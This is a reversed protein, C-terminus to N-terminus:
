DIDVPFVASWSADTHVASYVLEEYPERPIDDHRFISRGVLVLGTRVVTDAHEYVSLADDVGPRVAAEGRRRVNAFHRQVGSRMLHNDLEVLVAAARTDLHLERLYRVDVGVAWAAVIEVAAVGGHREFAHDVESARVVRDQREPIQALAARAVSETDLNRGVAAIRPVLDCVPRVGGAAPRPLVDGQIAVAVPQDVDAEAQVRAVVGAHVVAPIDVVDLYVVALAEKADSQRCPAAVARGRTSRDVQGALVYGIPGDCSLIRCGSLTEPPQAPFSHLTPHHFRRQAPLAM